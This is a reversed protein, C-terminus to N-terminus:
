LPEVKGGLVSFALSLVYGAGVSIPALPSLEEYETAGLELTAKGTFMAACEFNGIVGLQHEHVAPEPKDVSPFLRTHVLPLTVARPFRDTAAELAVSATLVRRGHSTAHAAFTAGVEKRVGGRGIAVPKTMAIQGLKKPFGQIQGRLMSLESDVWIFPVRGVRKDGRSDQRVAHLVLYAEHYQGIAPDALVREDCDSASSWDAFVVSAAGDPAPEMGSPLLAAIADRSATFDIAIIEGSYHWPPPAVISSRGTSSQPLTWGQLTM